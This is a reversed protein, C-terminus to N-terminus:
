RRRLMNVMSRASNNESIGSVSSGNGAGKGSVKEHAEVGKQLGREIFLGLLALVALMLFLNLVM